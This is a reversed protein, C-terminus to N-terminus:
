QIRKNLIIKDQFDVDEGTIGSKVYDDLKQKDQQNSLKIKAVFQDNEEM